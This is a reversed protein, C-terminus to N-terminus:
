APNRLCQVENLLSRVRSPNRIGTFELAFDHGDDLEIRITRRRVHVGTVSRWPVAVIRPPAFGRREVDICRETTLVLATGHWAARLACLYVLGGLALLAAFGLGFWGLRLLPFFFFFPTLFWCVGFALRPAYVLADARIIAIREEGEHLPIGLPDTM